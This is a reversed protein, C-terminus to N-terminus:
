GRSPRTNTSTPSSRSAAWRSDRLSRWSHASAIPLGRRLRSASSSWSWGKSGGRTSRTSRPSSSRSVRRRRSGGSSRSGDSVAATTRRRRSRRSAARRHCCLAHSLPDRPDPGPTALGTRADVRDSIREPQGGRRGAGTLGARARQGLAPGAREQRRGPAVHRHGVTENRSVSRRVAHRRLSPGPAAVETGRLRPCGPGARDRRGASRHAARGRRQAHAPFSFARGAQRGPARM